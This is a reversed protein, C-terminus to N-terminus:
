VRYKAAGDAIFPGVRYAHYKSVVGNNQTFDVEGLYEYDVDCWTGLVNTQVNKGSKDIYLYLYDGVSYNFEAGSTNFTNIVSQKTGSLPITESKSLASYAYKYINVSVSKSLTHGHSDQGTIQITKSTTINIPNDLTVFVETQSPMVEQGNISLKGVINSIETEQHKIKDVTLSVGSEYTGGLKTNGAYLSLSVITPTKYTQEDLYEKYAEPLVYVQIEKNNVTINGNIQSKVITPIDSKVAVISKDISIDNKDSINIGEGPFYTTGSGGSDKLQNWQKNRADYIYVKGTNTEIFRSGDSSLGLIPKKDTSSGSMCYTKENYYTATNYAVNNIFESM